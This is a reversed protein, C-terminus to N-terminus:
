YSRCLQQQLKAPASWEKPKGPDMRSPIEKTRLSENDSRSVKGLYAATRKTIYATTDYIIYIYIDFLEERQQKNKGQITSIPHRKSLEYGMSGKGKLPSLSLSTM